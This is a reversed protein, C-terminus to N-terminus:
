DVMKKKKKSSLDSVLFFIKPVLYHNSEILLFQDKNPKPSYLAGHIRCDM